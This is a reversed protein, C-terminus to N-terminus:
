MSEKVVCLLFVGGNFGDAESRSWRSKGLKKSAVDAEAGSIKPEILLIIKTRYVRSLDRMERLFKKSKM